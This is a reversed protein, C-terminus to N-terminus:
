RAVVNLATQAVKRQEPAGSAEIVTLMTYPGPPTGQPITFQYESVHTGQAKSVQRQDPGMVTQGDRQVYRAETLAVMAGPTPALVSYEVRSVVTTGATAPAPAVSSGQIEVRTGQSPVYAVRQAAASRDAVQKDLAQGFAAGVGAGVLGGVAAGLLAGKSGGFAGGVAAGFAAGAGTGVLAGTQTQTACGALLVVVLVVSVVKALRKM